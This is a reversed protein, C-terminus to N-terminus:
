PKPQTAPSDTPSAESPTPEYASAAASPPEAPTAVPGAPTAAHLERLREAEVEDEITRKLDTTARRFEFMMRGLSKGLEPLKKPGFVILAIVFIVLLEAPGFPGV